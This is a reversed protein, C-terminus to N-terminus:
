DIPDVFIEAVVDASHIPVCVPAPRFELQRRSIRIRPHVVAPLIKKGVLRTKVGAYFEFFIPLRQLLFSPRCGRSRNTPNSDNDWNGINASTKKTRQYAGEHVIIFAGEKQTNVLLSQEM